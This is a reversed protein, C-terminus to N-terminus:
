CPPKDTGDGSVPSCGASGAAPMSETKMTVKRIRFPAEGRSEIKKM